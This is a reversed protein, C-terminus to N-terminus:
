GFNLGLKLLGWTRSQVRTPANVGLVLERLRLDDNGHWVDRINAHHKWFGWRCTGPYIAATPRHLQSPGTKPARNPQMILRHYYGLSFQAGGTDKM